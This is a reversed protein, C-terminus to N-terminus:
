ARRASLAREVAEPVFASTDGGWRHVDRVISSSVFQLAPAPALFVTELGPALDRNAMAMRMEYDFDAPGRIGRVLAGAGIERARDVLLGEFQTVVLRDGAELHRTSERILATREGASFLTRKEANVAVTVELREFLGLARAIVDVHGRTVPDFTGAYLALPM